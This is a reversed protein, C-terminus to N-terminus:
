TRFVEVKGDELGIHRVFTLLRKMDDLNHYGIHWVAKGANKGAIEEFYPYDVEALSHGIVVIEAVDRMEDFVAKNQEIIEPTHKTFVKEYCSVGQQIGTEMASELLYAKWKNKYHPVMEGTPKYDKLYDVNPVHGLILKEKPQGKLRPM